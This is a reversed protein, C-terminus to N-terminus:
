WTFRMPELKFILHTLRLMCVSTKLTTIFYFTRVVSGFVQIDWVTAHYCTLVLELFDRTRPDEILLCDNIELGSTKSNFEIFNWTFHKKGVHKLYTTWWVLSRKSSEVFSIPSEHWGLAGLCSTVMWCLLMWIPVYIGSGIGRYLSRRPNEQIHFTCGQPCHQSPLGHTRGEYLRSLFGVNLAGEFLSMSSCPAHTRKCRCNDERQVIYTCSQWRGLM